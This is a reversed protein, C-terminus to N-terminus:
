VNCHEAICEYRKILRFSLSLPPLLITVEQLPGLSLLNPESNLLAHECLKIARHLDKLHAWKPLRPLGLLFINVVSNIVKWLLPGYSHTGKSHTICLVWWVTSQRYFYIFPRYFRFFVWRVWWYTCWLWLKDYHIPRRFHSWLKDWWSVLPLPSWWINCKKCFKLPVVCKLISHREWKM